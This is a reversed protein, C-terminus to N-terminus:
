EAREHGGALVGVRALAVREKYCYLNLLALPCVIVLVCVAPSSPFRALIWTEVERHGPCAADAASRARKM